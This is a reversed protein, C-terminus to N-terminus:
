SEKFYEVKVKNNKYITFKVKKIGKDKKTNTMSFTTVGDVKTAKKTIKYHYDDMLTRITKNVDSISLYDYSLYIKDKDTKVKLPKKDTLINRM